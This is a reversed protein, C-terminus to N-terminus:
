DRNEDGEKSNVANHIIAEKIDVPMITMHKKKKATKVAEKAITLAENNLFKVVADIADDNIRIGYKSHIYDKIAKKSMSMKNGKNKLV